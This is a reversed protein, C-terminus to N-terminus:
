RIKEEACVIYVADAENKPAYGDALRLGHVLFIESGVCFVPLSSRKQQPIKFNILQRRVSRKMKGFVYEDGNKVTRLTAKLESGVTIKGSKVKTMISTKYINTFSQAVNKDKTILIRYGIPLIFNEGWELSFSGNVPTDDGSKVFDIGSSSVYATIGGQVDYKVTKGCKVADEILAISAGDLATMGTIKAYLDRVYRALIAGDLQALEDRKANEPISAAQLEIYAADKELSACMRYFAKDASENLEYIHPLINHRIYNRTNHTEDNTSDHVFSYGMETMADVLEQKRLTLLPRVINGRVASIGKLGDLGCGRIMHLLVTEINDDAHHATSIKGCGFKDAARNLFEYRVERAAEELGNGRAKAISPVDAKESVFPVDLSKCLEACFAEDRDAEDGRIGHNLHAACVTIGLEDSLENLFVLLAVSDAGGSLACLVKEGKAFLKKETIHKKVRELASKRTVKMQAREM